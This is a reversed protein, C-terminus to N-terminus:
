FHQLCKEREETKSLESTDVISWTGTPYWLRDDDQSESQNLVRGKSQCIMCSGTNCLIESDASFSRLLKNVATGLTMTLFEWM